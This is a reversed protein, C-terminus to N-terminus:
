SCTWRWMRLVAWGRMVARDRDASGETLSNAASAASSSCGTPSTSSGSQGALNVSERPRAVTPLTARSAVFRLGRGTPLPRRGPLRRGHQVAALRLRQLRSRRFRLAFGAAVATAAPLWASLARRPRARGSAVRM